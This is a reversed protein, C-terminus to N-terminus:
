FIINDSKIIPIVYVFIVMALNSSNETILFANAEFRKTLLIYVVIELSKVFMNIVTHINFKPGVLYTKPAQVLNEFKVFESFKQQM